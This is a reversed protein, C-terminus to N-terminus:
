KAWFRAFSQVMKWPYYASKQTERGEIRGHSHGGHCVKCRYESHFHEDNTKVLWKKRLFDQNEDVMGYRCGDIRCDLWEQGHRRLLAQIALLPKQSWGYCPYPWEFYILLDPDEQLAEAIFDHAEWLLRRERRRHDELIQQREPGAYNLATWSCWYTCPLSWWLRRPRHRRRLARLHEWTDKKYLDYGAELNICRPYLGQRQAADSLWSHPACAIEWLDDRDDLSFSTLTSTAMAVMTTAFLMVKAAMKHTMSSPKYLKDKFDTEVSNVNKTVCDNKSAFDYVTVNANKPVQANQDVNAYQTM